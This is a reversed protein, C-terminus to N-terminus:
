TREVPLMPAWAHVVGALAFGLAGYLTLAYALTSLTYRRADAEDRIFGPAPSGSGGM